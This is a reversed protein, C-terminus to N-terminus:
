RGLIVRSVQYGQGHVPPAHVFWADGQFLRVAFVEHRPFILLPRTRTPGGRLPVRVETIVRALSLIRLDSGSLDAAFIIEKEERPGIVGRELAIRPAEVLRGAHDLTAVVTGQESVYSLYSREKSTCWVMGGKAPGEGGGWHVPIDLTATPRIAGDLGLHFLQVGTPREKGLPGALLFGDRVPTASSVGTWPGDPLDVPSTRLHGDPGILALQQWDEAYTLGDPTRRPRAKQMTVLTVDSPGGGEILAGGQVPLREVPGSVNGEKDALWTASADISGVGIVMWGTPTATAYAFYFPSATGNSEVFGRRGDRIAATELDLPALGIREGDGLALALRGHGAAFAVHEGAKVSSSRVEIGPARARCGGFALKCTSSCGIRGGLYGAEECSKPIDAGDCEEVLAMKPEPVPCVVGTACPPPPPSIRALDIKGNGCVANASPMACRMPDLECARAHLQAAKPGAGLLSGALDCSRQSPEAAFCGKEALPQAKPRAFRESIVAGERCLEGEGLACRQEAVAIARLMDETTGVTGLMRVLEACAQREGRACGAEALAVAKRRLIVLDRGPKAAVRTSQVLERLKWCGESQGAECGRERLQAACAYVLNEPPLRAAVAECAAANGSVCAKVNPEVAARAGPNATLAAEIEPTCDASIVPPPPPPAMMQRPPPPRSGHGPAMCGVLFGVCPLWRAPSRRVRKSEM